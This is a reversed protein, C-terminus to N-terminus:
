GITFEGTKLHLLDLYHETGTCSGVGYPLLNWCTELDFSVADVSLSFPHQLLEFDNGPYEGCDGLALVQLNPGVSESARALCAKKSCSYTIVDISHTSAVARFSRDPYSALCTQVMAMVRALSLPAPPRLRLQWGKNEIRVNTFPGASRLFKELQAFVHTDQNFEGFRESQSLPLCFAGNYHGVHVLGHLDTPFAKKLPGHVSDGRGTAFFIQVGAELAKLLRRRMTEPLPNNGHGAPVMTGDYDTVIAGFRQEALRSCFENCKREVEPRLTTEYAGAQMKRDVAQTKDFGEQQRLTKSAFGVPGLRYTKSGFAPVGPRGPDIGCAKGAAAVFGFEALMLQLAGKAGQQATSCKWIPTTAPLLRTTKDALQKDEPDNFAVVATRNVQKDIWNHRGHAFHRYDCLMSSALGAESLKSELDTAAAKSWNSHLLVYHARQGKPNIEAYGKQGLKVWAEAETEDLTPAGMARALVICTALLSNTALYGDHGSPVAFDFVSANAIGRAMKALKSKKAACIIVVHKAHRALASSLVSQVDKNNGSASTLILRTEGLNAKGQLFVLPTVAQALVGRQDLLQRGFEAASLSGGAGVLVVQNQLAEDLLAPLSGLDLAKAVRVTEPLRSMELEYPRGM